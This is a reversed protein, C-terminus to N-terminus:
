SKNKRFITSTPVIETFFVRKTRSATIVYRFWRIIVFITNNQKVSQIVRPLIANGFNKPRLIPKGPIPQTEDITTCQKRRYYVRRDREGSSM